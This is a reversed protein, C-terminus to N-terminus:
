RPAPRYLALRDSRAVLGWGASRAWREERALPRPPRGRGVVLYDYDERALAAVFGDRTGYRRLMEDVFPGVYEVENGLTPGFSPYVPSIGSDTWLGALGVKHGSPGNALLADIAADEGAYRGDNFREQAAYGALVVAAAAASLALALARAPVRRERPRGRWAWAGAVAVASLGIAAAWGAASPDLDDVYLGHAIAPLALVLLPLRLGAALEGLAWGGAAAGILLGPMAYRANVGALVPQGEAGLASYPTLAYTVLVGAACALAAALVGPRAASRRRAFLVGAAVATMLLAAAGPGAVYERFGPLLYEDWISFDFAYDAISFGALERVPDHPADFITIGFPAVEVPLVPNGSIVLNRLLWVGGVLGVLGALAAGDRLVTRPSRRALLSAVAWTVLVVAVATVGYWKTGFAIGLGLGALVLDASAGTRAHRILFLVGTGFSALMLADVLGVVAPVLVSPIAAVVAALALAPARAAGLETAIAYVALVALALFPYMVLPALFDNEWPLVVALLMVDGHQPYNGHFLLPVFQDVQWITGTEIWSAVDPLHFNLADVATTPQTVHTLAVALTYVAVVGIATLALAWSAADSAPATVRPPPPEHTAPRIRACAALWIAAAVLVTERGLVFLVGPVLHVALLGATAVLGFALVRAAGGLHALRRRLVIAAGAAVAGTTALFFLAGVLYDAGSLTAVATV